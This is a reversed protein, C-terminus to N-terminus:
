VWMWVQVCVCERVCMTGAVLAHQVYVCVRLFLGESTCMGAFACKCVCACVRVRVRVCLDEPTCCAHVGVRPSAFVQLCCSCAWVCACLRVCFRLARPHACARTCGDM